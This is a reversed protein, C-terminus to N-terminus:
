DEPVYSDGCLFWDEKEGGEIEYRDGCLYKYREEDEEEEVEVESKEPDKALEIDKSFLEIVKSVPNFGM